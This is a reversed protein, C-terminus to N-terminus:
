SLWLPAGGRYVVVREALSLPLASLDFVALDTSTLPIEGFLVATHEADAGRLAATTFSGLSGSRYPRAGPVELLVDALSEAAADRERVPIETAAATADFGSTAAM